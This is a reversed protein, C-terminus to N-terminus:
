GFVAGTVIEAGRNGARELHHAYTLTSTINNHRAFKQAEQLSLGGLLALAVASHRFSHATLKDSDYGAARLRRKAIESISRTSLRRDRSNRSVSTFLPAATDLEGRGNLYRCVAEKVPETLEVYEAQEDRDEGRLYLVASEGATGIDGVNARSIETDRLGSTIMLSLIAYDRRDRETEPGIKELVNKVQEVTLYDRKHCREVDVGKIHKAINKYVGERELWKFFRRLATMYIQVTAPQKTKTLFDRYALVDDLCLEALRGRKHLWRLFQRIAYDYTEVSKPRLVDLGAIWRAFLENLRAFSNAPKAASPTRPATIISKYCKDM